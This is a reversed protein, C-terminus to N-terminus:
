VIEELAAEKEAEQSDWEDAGWILASALARASGSRVSLRTRPSSGEEDGLYVWIYQGYVIVEVEDGTSEVMAEVSDTRIVRRRAQPTSM